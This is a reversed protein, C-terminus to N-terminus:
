MSDSFRCTNLVFNSMEENRTMNIEKSTVVRQKDLGKRTKMMKILANAKELSDASPISTVAELRQRPIGAKNRALEAVHAEIVADQLRAVSKGTYNFM